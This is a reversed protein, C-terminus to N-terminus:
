LRQCLRIATATTTTQQKSSLLDPLHLQQTTILVAITVAAATISHCLYSSNIIRIPLLIRIQLLILVCFVCFINCHSRSLLTLCSHGLNMTEVKGNLSLGLIELKKKIM